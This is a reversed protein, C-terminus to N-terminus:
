CRLDALMSLRVMRASTSMAITNMTVGIRKGDDREDAGPASVVVVALVVGVVGGARAAVDGDGLAEAALPAGGVSCGVGPG